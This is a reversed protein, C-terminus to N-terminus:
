KFGRMERGFERVVKGGGVRCRVTETHGDARVVKGVGVEVQDQFWRRVVGLTEDGVVGEVGERGM